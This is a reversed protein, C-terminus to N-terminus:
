KWSSWPEWPLLYEKRYPVFIVFLFFLVSPMFGETSKQNTYCFKFKRGEGDTFCKQTERIHHHCQKCFPQLYPLPVNTSLFFRSVFLISFGLYLAEPDDMFNQIKTVIGHKGELVKRRPLYFRAQPERNWEMAIM